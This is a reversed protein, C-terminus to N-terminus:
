FTFWFEGCFAWNPKWSHNWSLIKRLFFFFYSEMEWRILSVFNLKNLPFFFLIRGVHFFNFLFIALFRIVISSAAISLFCFWVFYIFFLFYFLFWCFIYYFRCVKTSNQVYFFVLYSALIALPPLLRWQLRNDMRRSERTQLLDLINFQDIYISLSLPSHTRSLPSLIEDLNM